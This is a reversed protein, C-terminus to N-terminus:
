IQIVHDLFGTLADGHNVILIQLKNQVATVKLKLLLMQFIRVNDVDLYAMPEDLVLMGVSSAFTDSMSLRFSVAAVIAQGGSLDFATCKGGNAFEVQFAMTDDLWMRFPSEWQNLYHEMRVNLVRAFERMALAPLAKVHLADRAIKVQEIWKAMAFERTMKERLRTVDSERQGLVGQNVGISQLLDGMSKRAQALLIGDAKAKEVVADSPAEVGTGLSALSGQAASLAARASDYKGSKILVAMHLQDVALQHQNFVALFDKQAQLKSTDPAEVPRGALSSEALAIRQVVSTHQAILEDMSQLESSLRKFEQNATEKMSGFVRAATTAFEVIVSDLKTIEDSLQKRQAVLSKSLQDRRVIILENLEMLRAKIARPDHTFVSGCTPCKGQDVLALHKEAAKHEALWELIQQDDAPGLPLAQLRAKAADRSTIAVQEDPLRPPNAALASIRQVEFMAALSADAAAKRQEDTVRPALHQQKGKLEALALRHVHGNAYENAQAELAAVLKVTQNYPENLRQLEERSAAETTTATALQETATALDETCTKVQKRAYALSEQSRLAQVAQALIAESPALRDLEQQLTTRQSALQDRETRTEEFATVATALIQELDPTLQQTNVEAKLWEHAKALNEMSFTKQFEEYRSSPKAFLIDSLEGQQIYVNNIRTTKNAGYIKDLEASVEASKNVAIGDKVKLQVTSKGGKVITRKLSFEYNGVVFDGRLVCSDHGWTINSELNGESGTDGTDLFRIAALVNSKGKGNPGVIGNLGAGFDIDLKEIQRWHRLELHTIM